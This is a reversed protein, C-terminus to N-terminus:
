NVPVEAKGDWDGALVFDGNLGFSFVIDGVGNGSTNTNNLSMQGTGPNFVGITAVGDGDWDGTVPTSGKAGFTFPTIDITGVFGNSLLFQTNGPRFLGPTDIGDGNWDGVIPIDGNQGFVIFINEPPSTNNTNPGNSLIWENTSPRFIGITDIGDGNWDGVVPIDGNLGFTNLTIITTGNELRLLWGKTSPRFIGVDDIGNGDWDGAVPLDGAIGFPININEAGPSNSNRLLFANISPRFVGITDNFTASFKAVFGDLEGQPKPQFVGPTTPLDGASTGTIYVNGRPDLAIAEAKATRGGFTTSYLLKAPTTSSVTAGIKAIFASGVINGSFSPALPGVPFTTGSTTRGTVYANGGTDITIGLGEEGDEPTNDNAGGLFSCYFLATGDANLKAVFAEGNTQTSDFANKLPFRDPSSNSAGTIYARQASDVAVSEVRDNIDGGFYTLYTLSANGSSTTGVKAVFGDFGGGQFGEQLPALSSPSKTKLDDSATWGGVYANRANDVAIGLGQDDAKGGLYSSYLLTSNGRSQRPDFVAVFADTGDGSSHNLLQFANKTPLDNSATIGAVYIRNASDAAVSKGIDAGRTSGPDLDIVSGGFFTSYILGSGDPKLMTVFADIVRLEHECSFGICGVGNKQFANETVPFTSDNTDNIVAGTVIAEGGTGVTVAHAETGCIRLNSGVRCNGTDPTNFESDNGLFTSYLFNSGASNLKAVFAVSDLGNPQIASGIPFSLDAFTRGVIYAQGSNDVSIGLAEDTAKGGFYTSYILLPDIVLTKSRDYQTIEFRVEDKGRLVFKGPIIQRGHDAEQYIVPVKQIMEGVSTQSVLNGAQDIHLQQAGRLTFRIQSPDAGPKVVFDYEINSQNGHWVMDIGNWAERYVIREYSAVNTHWKKQDNGILYNVKGELMAEGELRPKAGILEMRVVAAVAAAPLEAQGRESQTGRLKMTAGSDSLFLTYGHGRALFRVASNTQGENAEFHLPLKGYNDLTLEKSQTKAAPTIEVAQPTTPASLTTRVPLALSLLLTTLTVLAISKTRINPDPTTM